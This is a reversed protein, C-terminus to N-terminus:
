ILLQFGVSDWSLFLRKPASIILFKFMWLQTLVLNFIHKHFLEFSIYTSVTNPHDTDAHVHRPVVFLPKDEVVLTGSAIDTKAIVGQGKGDITTVRWLLGESGGEM